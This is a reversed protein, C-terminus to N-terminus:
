NLLVKQAFEITAASLFDAEPKRALGPGDNELELRWATVGRARAATLMDRMSHRNAQQRGSAVLLPKGIRQPKPTLTEPLVALAGAIRDGAEAAALLAMSGGHGMGAVLVKSADLDPQARIWDLMAALDRASEDRRPGQGLRLFSKGFGSAGRVNPHLVAIGLENVLFNRDGIFGARAQSGPGGRFDVFVPRKGSFREPPHYHFGVIDRGEPGPWKVVRPEAFQSVNVRSSNGNTWRALKNAEVDYTFVDGAARAGSLQFGVESSKPRWALGTIVGNFLPPRPQEELSKLDLFRLSHSGGENATFAIRQADVSVEFDDIDHQIRQTLVREPGGALPVLVLRRWEAGRDSTAFLGKGDPTFRPLRYSVADDKAPRTVRRRKGTAVDMVWLHSEAPNVVQVYAIRKGDGSAGAEVFKEAELKAMARAVAAPPEGVRNWESVIAEPLEALRVPRVGPETVVHLQTAAEGRRQVLIERRSPHWAVLSHPVFEGYPKLRAALAAAIPPMGETVATGPPLAEQAFVFPAAAFLAAGMAARWRARRM